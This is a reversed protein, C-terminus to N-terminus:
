RAKRKSANLMGVIGDITKDLSSNFAKRNKIDLEKFTEATSLSLMVARKVDERKVKGNGGGKISEVTQIVMPLTMVIQLIQNFNM